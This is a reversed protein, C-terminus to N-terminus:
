SGGAAQQLKRKYREVTRKAIGLERAAQEGTIEGPEPHPGTALRMRALVALRERYEEQQHSTKRGSPVPEAPATPMPKGHWRYPKWGPMGDGHGTTPSTARIM